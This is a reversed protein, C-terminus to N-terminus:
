ENNHQTLSHIHTILQNRQAPPASFPKNTKRLEWKKKQLFFFNLFPDWIYFSNIHDALRITAGLRDAEAPEATSAEHHSFTCRLRRRLWIRWCSEPDAPCILFFRCLRRLTRIIDKNIIISDHRYQVQNLMEGLNQRFNVASVETIM